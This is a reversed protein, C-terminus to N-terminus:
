ADGPVRGLDTLADMLARVPADDRHDPHTLLWADRRLSRVEPRYRLVEVLDPYLAALGRPLLAVGVGRRAMALMALRSGTAMSVQTAHEREFETEPLHALPPGCVIWRHEDREAERSTGFVGYEISPLRRGWLEAPPNPVLTVSVDVERRRVSPGDHALHLDVQLDPHRERLAAIPEELLPLYGEVTTLRVVGAVETRQRRALRQAAAVETRTRRATARLMEGAETLELQEAGRVFCPGGIREDLAALRRYVTSVAVGLERAAATAGGTRAVAELYVLDDWSM